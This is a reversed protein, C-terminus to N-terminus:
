NIASSCRHVVLSARRALLNLDARPPMSIPPSNEGPLSPKRSSPPISARNRRRNSRPRPHHSARTCLRALSRSLRRLTWPSPRPPRPPSIQLTPAFTRASPRQPPQAPPSHRSCRAPPHSVCPSRATRRTFRSRPSRCPPPQRRCLSSTRTLGDRPPRPSRRRARPPPRTLCVNAPM